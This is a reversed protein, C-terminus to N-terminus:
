RRNARRRARLSRLPGNGGLTRAIEPEFFTVVAFPTKTQGDVPYAKRRGQDPLLHRRARDDGRGARRAHRPRFRGTRRTGRLERRRRLQRRALRRHYLDPVPHSSSTRREGSGAKLYDVHLAGVLATDIPMTSRGNEHSARCGSAHPVQRTTSKDPHVASMTDELRRSFGADHGSAAADRWAVRESAARTVRLAHPGVLIRVLYVIRDEAVRGGADRDGTSMSPRLPAPFGTPGASECTSRPSYRLGGVACSDTRRSIRSAM